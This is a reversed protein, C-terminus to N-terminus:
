EANKLLMKPKLMFGYAADKIKWPKPFSWITLGFTAQGRDSRCLKLNPNEWCRAPKGSFTVGIAANNQIMYGRWRTLWSPRSIQLRKYLKDVTKKWSSLIRPTSVTVLHTLGSDWCRVRGMLSCVQIRTELPWGLAWPRVIMTENYVIGWPEGFIISFKNPDFSQTSSSQDSIRSEKAFLWPFWSTKTRWRTSWTSVLFPLIMPREVRSSRLCPKTLILPRM